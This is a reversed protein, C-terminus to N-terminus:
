AEKSRHHDSTHFQALWTLFCLRFMRHNLTSDMRITHSCATVMHRQHVMHICTTVQHRQHHRLVTGISNHSLCLRLVQKNNRLVHKISHQVMSHLQTILSNSSNLAAAPEQQSIAQGFTQLAQSFRHNRHALCTQLLMHGHIQTFSLSVRLLMIRLVM